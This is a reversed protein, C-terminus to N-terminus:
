EAAFSVEILQDGVLLFLKSGPGGLLVDPMLLNFQVLGAFGPTLGCFLVRIEQEGGGQATVLAEPYNMCEALPSAAAAEGTAPPNTLQGIGTGFLTVAEKAKAPNDPTVLSGDQHIIIPDRAEATRAYQFVGFADPAVTMGATPGAVGDRVVQVPAEGPGVEYPNQFNIQNKSAFLVPADYGGILLSVGALEKTIPFADAEATEETFNTGFISGIAGPALTREFSAANVAAQAIAVQGPAEGTVKFSVPDTEEDGRVVTLTHTAAVQMEQAPFVVSLTNRNAVTATLYFEAGHPGTWMVRSDETFGDGTLTLTTDPSGAPASKPTVSTLGLEPIGILLDLANSTRAEVPDDTEVTISVTGEETLNADPVMALLVTNSVFTTMLPQGDWQVVSADEIFGTGLVELEADHTFAPIFDPNLASLQPQPNRVIFASTAIETTTDGRKDVINLRYEDAPLPGIKFDLQYPAFEFTCIGPDGTTTVDVQNGNVEVKPMEPVCGTTWDGSYLVRIEDLATPQAPTFEPVAVEKIDFSMSQVCRSATPVRRAPVAPETTEPTSVRIELLEHLGPARPNGCFQGELCPTLESILLAPVEAELRNRSVFKTELVRRGMPTASDNDWVIASSENFNAGDVTLTFKAGQVPRIRPSINTIYPEGLLDKTEMCLWGRAQPTSEAHDTDVTHFYVQDFPSERIEDEEIPRVPDGTLGLASTTSIFVDPGEGGRFTGGLKVPGVGGKFAKAFDMQKYGLGGGGVAYAYESDSRVRIGSERLDELASDVFVELADLVDELVDDVLDGAREAVRGELGLEEALASASPLKADALRLGNVRLEPRSDLLFSFVEQNSDGEILPRIRIKLFFKLKTKVTTSWIVEGLVKIELPLEPGKVTLTKSEWDFTGPRRIEPSGKCPPDEDEECERDPRYLPPTRGTGNAIAVNRIGDEAPYGLDDLEGAFIRRALAPRGNNLTSHHISLMQRAAQTNMGTLMLVTENDTVKEAAEINALDGIALAALATLGAAPAAVAVTGAAVNVIFQNAAQIGIPLYAGEQPSDFSVFLDVDHDAGESEMRALAHRSVLGGMSVGVVILKQDPQLGADDGKVIAGSRVMELAKEFVLSNRRLDDSKRCWDLRYIHFGDNWRARYRQLTTAIDGNIRNVDGDEEDPDQIGGDCLPNEGTSFGAVHVIIGRVEEDAPARRFLLHGRGRILLFPDDAEFVEARAVEFSCPNQLDSDKCDEPEAARMEPPLVGAFLLLAAVFMVRM